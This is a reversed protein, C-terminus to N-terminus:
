QVVQDILLSVSQPGGDLSLTPSSGQLDGPQATAGGAKSIRAGVVVQQFNSLKMAPLMAQSDDLTVQVPFDQVPRQVAALPMPPGSAAKAFIFLTDQPSLRDRLAPALDVTVAIRPGAAPPRDQPSAPNEGGGALLKEARGIGESILRAGESHPDLMTLLRQWVKIAGRYDGSNFAGLGMLMMAGQHDPSVELVAHLLTVAEQSLRGDKTLVMAQAYSLMIDPRQPDLEYARGFVALAEPLRHLQLYGKGLLLLDDPNAMGERLLRAQLVRTFGPLDRSAEQPWEDPQRLAEAVAGQLRQQLAIWNEAQGRYSSVYYYALALLPLSLAAVAAMMVARRPKQVEPADEAPVDVLLTRELEARLQQFQTEAIRGQRHETELEALRERFIATDVEDQSVSPAPRKRWLPVVVVAAALLAMVFAIPWFM